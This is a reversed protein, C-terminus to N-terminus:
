KSVRILNKLKQERGNLKMRDENYRRRIEKCDELLAKKNNTLGIMDRCNNYVKHNAEKYM